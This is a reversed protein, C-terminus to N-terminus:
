VLKLRIWCCVSNTWYLLMVLRVSPGEYLTSVLSLSANICRVLQREVGAWFKLSRINEGCHWCKIYNHSSIKDNMLKFHVIRYDVLFYYNCVHVHCTDKRPTVKIWVCVFLLWLWSIYYIKFSVVHRWNTTGTVRKINNKKKYHCNRLKVHQFICTTSRCGWIDLTVHPQINCRKAKGPFLDIDLDGWCWTTFDSRLLEIYKISVNLYIQCWCTDWGREDLKSSRQKQLTAWTCM